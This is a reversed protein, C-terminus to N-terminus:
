QNWNKFPLGDPVPPALGPLAVAYLMDTIKSYSARYHVASKTIILKQREPMIGHSRFIEIDWPQRPISTIIVTNGEIEVVATKGHNIVEGYSLKEKSAYKGDTIMKVYATVSLPGGSFCPDSRGGLQLDVNTGVGSKVCLDVSAPDVITALVAGRIGRKLIERLIHTTDSMGGAGPNDSADAIVFPKEKEALAKELVDELPPYERKLNPQQGKIYDALEDAYQAALTSDGNTVVTVGMGMEKIDSLFFGHAFRASLVGKQKAINKTVDYICKMESFDSPFLPLLYPVHRFVMIPNYIGDLTDLLIKATLLGTEYTDTHPYCEYPLLATANRAMKETINAHLDLSAIIPVTDGVLERIVELLDGEGDPHGIAVMAGHLSLLVGDLPSYKRILKVIEQTVFDYVEKTVPGSPAANLAVAPILMIDTRKDLVDLFAGLESGIGRQNDFVAEGVDFRYNRYKTEDALIPCFSNTEHHFQAILVKKKM